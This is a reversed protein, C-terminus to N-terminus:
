SAPLFIADCWALSGNGYIPNYLDQVFYDYQQLWLAIDQFLPQNIYQQRFYTETYILRIKKQAMMNAAGKLASLEAGQIDMKLIDITNIQHQECFSDLTIVDVNISTKNAVQSDSSLGMKKSQLLSNTDANNNVYFQMSSVTEGIAKQITKIKHNENVRQQLINYSEGFPEFAYIKAGPFLEAYRLSIDGVNAGIDFILRANAGLIEKQKAFADEKFSNKQVSQIFGNGHVEFGFKRTINNIFTKNM